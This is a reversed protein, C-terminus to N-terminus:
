AAGWIRQFDKIASKKGKSGNLAPNSFRPGFTAAMITQAEQATLTNGYSAKLAKAMDMM